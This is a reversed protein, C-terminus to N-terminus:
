RELSYLMGELQIEELTDALHQTDMRALLEPAEREMQAIVAAFQEPTLQGSEALEIANRLREAIPALWREALAPIGDYAKQQIQRPTM